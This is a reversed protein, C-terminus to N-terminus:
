DAKSAYEPQWIQGGQKEPSKEWSVANGRGERFGLSHDRCLLLGEEKKLIAVGWFVRKELSESGIGM